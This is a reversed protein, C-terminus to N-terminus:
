NDGDKFCRKLKISEPYNCILFVGDGFYGQFECEDFQHTCIMCKHGTPKGNCDFGDFIPAEEKNKNKKM